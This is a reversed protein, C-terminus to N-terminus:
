VGTKVALACPWPIGGENALDVPSHVHGTQKLCHRARHEKFVYVAALSKTSLRWGRRTSISIQQM